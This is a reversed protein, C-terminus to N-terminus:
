VPSLSGAWGRLSGGTLYHKFDTLANTGHNFTYLAGFGISAPLVVKAIASHNKALSQVFTM